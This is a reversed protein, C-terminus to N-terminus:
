KAFFWFRQKRWCCSEYGMRSDAINLPRNVGGYLDKMGVRLSLFRIPLLTAIPRHKLTLLEMGQKNFEIVNHSM